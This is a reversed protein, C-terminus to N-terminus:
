KSGEKQNLFRGRVIEAKVPKNRIVVNVKTGPQSSNVKVYGMGIPHDLSPSHTGSTVQGIEEGQENTLTYGQRPIGRDHMTFGVLKRRIGQERQAVLADRGIFDGKDFKVFRALGAELPTTTHDIDNGYLPMRMELRLTDRAGLGIPAVGLTKGKEMLSNWLQVALSNPFYLEFGDEGTYGTRSLRLTHGEYSIDVFRYSKIDKVSIALVDEVLPASYPGQVAILAIDDTQDTLTTDKQLHQEIWAYDKQTNSANVVLFFGQETRYVLIDDIIGGNEDTLMTYQIEGTQLISPDNTTILSLTELAGTGTLKFEGMHCLDFLGVKSRVIRHEELVGGYQVPMEFGHFDVMRAGLTRHVETLPTQKLGNGGKWNMRWVMLRINIDYKEEHFHIGETVWRPRSYLINLLYREENYPPQSLIPKSLDIRSGKKFARLFVM